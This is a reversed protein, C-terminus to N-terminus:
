KAMGGAGGGGGFRARMAARVQEPTMIRGDATQIDGPNMGPACPGLYKATTDTVFTGNLQAVPAGAITTETHVKFETQADGSLAGRTTIQAPGRKCTVAIAVGGGAAQTFAPACSPDEEGGRQRMTVQPQENEGRCTKVPGFNPMLSPTTVTNTEWLGAKMTPLTAPPGAPATAAAPTAADSAAPAASEGKDAPKSCAALALVSLSIILAQKM